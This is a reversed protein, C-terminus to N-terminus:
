LSPVLKYFVKLEAQSNPCIQVVWSEYMYINMGIHAQLM